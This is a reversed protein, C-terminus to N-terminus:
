CYKWVKAVKEFCLIHSCHVIRVPATGWRRTAVSSVMTEPHSQRPSLSLIPPKEYPYQLETTSKEPHEVSLPQDVERCLWGVNDRDREAMLSHPRSPGDIVRGHHAFMLVPDAQVKGATSRGVYHHGLAKMRTHHRGKVDTSNQGHMREDFMELSAAYHPMQKVQVRAAETTNM